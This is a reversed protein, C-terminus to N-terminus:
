QGLTGDFAASRPRHRVFGARPAPGYRYLVRGSVNALPVRGFERSDTSSAPNDGRVEASDGSLDVIRKVLPRQEGPRPDRITVLDGIRLLHRHAIRLVVLRDGPELTPRMSDGAVVVRTLATATAAIAAAFLRRAHRGGGRAPTKGAGQTKKM